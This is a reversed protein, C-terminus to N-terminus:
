QGETFDDHLQKTRQRTMESLCAFRYIPLERGWANDYIQLACEADRYALWARQAKLLAQSNSLGGNAARDQPSTQADGAKAKALAAKWQANLASDARDYAARECAILDDTRISSCLKDEAAALLAVLM